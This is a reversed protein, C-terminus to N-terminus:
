MQLLDSVSLKDTRPTAVAYVFGAGLNLIM